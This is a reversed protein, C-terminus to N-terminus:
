VATGTNQKCTAGRISAILSIGGIKLSNSYFSALNREGERSIALGNKFGGVRM